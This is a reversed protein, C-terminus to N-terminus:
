GRDALARTARGFRAGPSVRGRARERRFALADLHGNSPGERPMEDPPDQPYAQSATLALSTSRLTSHGPRTRRAPCTPERRGSSPSTSPQQRKSAREATLCRGASTTGCGSTTLYTSAFRRRSSPRAAVPVRTAKRRRGPRGARRCTRGQDCLHGCRTRAHRRAGRGGAQGAAYAAHRAAGRLDRAATM